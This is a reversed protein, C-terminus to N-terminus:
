GWWLRCPLPLPKTLETESIEATAGYSAWNGEMLPPLTCDLCHLESSCVQETVQRQRKCSTDRSPVETGPHRPKRQISPSRISWCQSRWKLVLHCICLEDESCMFLHAWTYWRSMKFSTTTVLTGGMRMKRSIVCDLNQPARCDENRGKVWNRFIAPHLLQRDGRPLLSESFPSVTRNHPVPFRSTSLRLNPKLFCKFILNAELARHAWVAGAEAPGGKM